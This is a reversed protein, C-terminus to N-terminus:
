FSSFSTPPVSSSSSAGRPLLIAQETPRTSEGHFFNFTNTFNGVNVSGFGSLSETTTRLVSITNKLYITILPLGNMNREQRAGDLLLTALRPAIDGCADKSVSLCASILQDLNNPFSHWLNMNMRVFSTELLAKVRGMVLTTIEPCRQRVVEGILTGLVQLIESHLEHFKNQISTVLGGAGRINELLLSTQTFFRQYLDTDKEGWHTTFFAAGLDITIRLDTGIKYGLVKQVIQYFYFIAQSDFQHQSLRQKIDALAENAKQITTIGAIQQQIQKRRTEDVAAVQYTVSLPTPVFGCVLNLEQGRDHNGRLLGVLNYSNTALYIFRAGQDLFQYRIYIAIADNGSFKREDPNADDRFRLNTITVDFYIRNDEKIINAVKCGNVVWRGEQLSSNLIHLPTALLDQQYCNRIVAIENSNAPLKEEVFTIFNLGFPDTDRANESPYYQKGNIRLCMRFYDFVINGREKRDQVLFWDNKRLQELRENKIQLLTDPLEFEPYFQYVCGVPMPPGVPTPSVMRPIEIQPYSAAVATAVASVPPLELHPAALRKEKIHKILKVIAALLGILGGIGLTSGFITLWFYDKHFTIDAQYPGSSAQGNSVTVAYSPSYGAGTYVFKVQRDSIDKQLFSTIPVDDYCWTFYGNVLASITFNLKASLFAGDSADLNASTLTVQQVPAVMQPLSEVFNLKNIILTPPLSGRGYIIAAHKNDYPEALWGQGVLMDPIGDGNVDGAPKILPANTLVFGDVGNIMKAVDLTAKFQGQHGFLVYSYPNEELPAKPLVTVWGGIGLDGFGDGNIDGLGTVTYDYLSGISSIINFGNSGNLDSFDMASNWAGKHGFIVHIKNKVSIVPVSSNTCSIQSVAFAFDQIADGNIDLNSSIKAGDDNYDNGYGCGNITFGNQGNLKTLDVKNQWENGHGFLVYYLTGCEGGCPKVYEHQRNEIALDYIGDGNIDASAVTIPFREDNYFGTFTFGNKGNLNDLHVTADWEGKHGFIVHGETNNMHTLALDAIKDGNIDNIFTPQSLFLSERPIDTIKFGNRGNLANLDEFTITAPWPNRHGFLVYSISANVDIEGQWSNFRNFSIALDKYGDDNIDGGGTIRPYEASYAGQGHGNLVISFGNEGNLTALNIVERPPEAAGFLVYISSFKGPDVQSHGLSSVAFDDYGDGNIDGLSSLSNQGPVFLVTKEEYVSFGTKENELAAVTTNLVKPFVAVSGATTSIVSTDTGDVNVVAGKADSAGFLRGLFGRGVVGLVAVLGLGALVLTGKAIQAGHRKSWNWWSEPQITQLPIQAEFDQFSSTNTNLAPSSFPPFM